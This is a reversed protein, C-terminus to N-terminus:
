WICPDLEEATWEGQYLEDNLESLLGIFIFILNFVAM